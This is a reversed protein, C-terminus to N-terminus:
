FVAAVRAEVFDSGRRGLEEAGEESLCGPYGEAQEGDKGQVRNGCCSEGGEGEESESIDDAYEEVDATEAEFGCCVLLLALPHFFLLILLV